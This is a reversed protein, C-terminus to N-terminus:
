LEVRHSNTRSTGAEKEHGCQERGFCSTFVGFKELYRNYYLLMEQILSLSDATSRQLTHSLEELLEIVRETADPNDTIPLLPDNFGNFLSERHKGM